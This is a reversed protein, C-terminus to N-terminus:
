ISSNNVVFNYVTYNNCRSCKDVDGSSSFTYTINDRLIDYLRIPPRANLVGNM